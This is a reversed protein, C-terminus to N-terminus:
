NDGMEVIGLEYLRTVAEPPPPPAESDDGTGIDYLAGWLQESPSDMGSM